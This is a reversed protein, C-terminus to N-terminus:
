QLCRIVIEGAESKNIANYGKCINGKVDPPLNTIIDFNFPPTTNIEVVSSNVNVAGRGELAAKSYFAISYDRGRVLSPLSFNREYNGEAAQALRVEIKIFSSMDSIETGFAVRENDVSKQAIVVFFVVMFLLMFSIMSAAEVASQGKKGPTM